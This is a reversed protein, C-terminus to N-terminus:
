LQSKDECYLVTDAFGDTNHKLYFNYEPFISILYEPIEFIDKGKHYVCIALKPKFKKIMEESGKLASLEAGEIDMKIFDVHDIKNDSVFKDISTIDITKVNSGGFEVSSAVGYGSIKLKSETEGVGKQVPIVIKELSNVKINEKLIKFNEEMPEFAYVRGNGIYKSFWLATDGFCAGADIIVDGSSPKVNKYAYQEFYFAEVVEGYNGNYIFNDIKYKNDSVKQLKKQATEWDQKTIRPTFIDYAQGGIIVFAIRYKIFWDFTKKSEEDSLLEYIKDFKDPNQIAEYMTETCSLKGMGLLGEALQSMKQSMKHFQSPKMVHIGFKNALKNIGTRRPNSLPDKGSMEDLEKKYESELYNHVKGFAEEVLNKTHSM